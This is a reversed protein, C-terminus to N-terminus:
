GEVVDGSKPSKGQHQLWRRPLRSANGCLPSLAPNAFFELWNLIYNLWGHQLGQYATHQAINYRGVLENAADVIRVVFKAESEQERITTTIRPMSVIVKSLPSEKM